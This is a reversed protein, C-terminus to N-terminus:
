QCGKERAPVPRGFAHCLEAGDFEADAAVPPMTTATTSWWDIRFMFGFPQIKPQRRARWAPQM